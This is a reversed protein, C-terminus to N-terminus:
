AIRLAMRSVPNGAQPQFLLQHMASSPRRMVWIQRAEHGATNIFSVKADVNFYNIKGVNIGNFRDFEAGTQRIALIRADLAASAAAAYESLTNCLDVQEYTNNWTDDKFHNALTRNLRMAVVQNKSAVHADTISKVQNVPLGTESESRSFPTNGNELDQAIIDKFGSVQGDRTLSTDTVTPTSTARGLNADGPNLHVHFINGRQRKPRQFAPNKNFRFRKCSLNKSAITWKGIHNTSCPPSNFGMLRLLYM